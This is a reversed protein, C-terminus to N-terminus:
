PASPSSNDDDSDAEDVVVGVVIASGLVIGTATLPNSWLSKGAGQRTSANRKKNTKNAKANARVGLQVNQPTVPTLKMAAPMVYVGDGHEVALDYEAAPLGELSFSGDAATIASRYTEGSETNRALVQAGALPANDQSLSLVQGSLVPGASWAPLSMSVLLVLFVVPSAAKSRFREIMVESEKLYM